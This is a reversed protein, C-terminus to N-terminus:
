NEFVLNVRGQATGSYFVRDGPMLILTSAPSAKGVGGSCTINAVDNTVALSLQPVKNTVSTTTVIANTTFSVYNTGAWYLWDKPFYATTNTTAGGDTIATYTYNTKTASTVQDALTWIERVYKVNATGAAVTSVANAEIVKAAVAVVQGDKTVATSGIDALAAAAAFVAIAFAKLQKMDEFGKPQWARRTCVGHM